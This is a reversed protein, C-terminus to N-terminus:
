QPRKSDVMEVLEQVCFLTSIVCLTMLSSVFHRKVFFTCIFTQLFLKEEIYIRWYNICPLFVVVMQGVLLGGILCSPFSGKGGGLNEKKNKLSWLQLTCRHFLTTFDDCCLLLHRLVNYMCVYFVCFHCNLFVRRMSICALLKIM